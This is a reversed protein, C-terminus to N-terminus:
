PRPETVHMDGFGGRLVGDRRIRHALRDYAREADRKHEHVSFAKTRAGELNDFYDVYYGDGAREMTLNAFVYSDAPSDHDAMVSYIYGCAMGYSSIKGAKTVFAPSRMYEARRDADTFEDITFM